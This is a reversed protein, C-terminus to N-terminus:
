EGNGMLLISRDWYLYNYTVTANFFYWNRISHLLFSNDIWQNFDSDSYSPINTKIYKHKKKFENEKTKRANVGLTKCAPM